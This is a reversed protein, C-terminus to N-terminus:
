ATTKMWIALDPHGGRYEHEIRCSPSSLPPCFVEQLLQDIERGNILIYDCQWM